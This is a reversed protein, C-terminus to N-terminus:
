ESNAWITSDDNDHRDSLHTTMSVLAKPTVVSNAPDRAYIEYTIRDLGSVGDTSVTKRLFFSKYDLPLGSFGSWDSWGNIHSSATVPTGVSSNDNMMRDHELCIRAIRVAVTMRESDKAATLAALFIGLIVLLGFVLVFTATLVEVVTFGRLARIRTTKVIKADQKM